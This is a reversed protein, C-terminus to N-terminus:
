GCATAKTITIFCHPNPNFRCDNTLSTFFESAFLKLHQPLGIFSQRNSFHKIEVLTYFSFMQGHMQKKKGPTAESVHLFYQLIASCFAHIFFFLSPHCM